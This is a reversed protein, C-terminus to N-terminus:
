RDDQLLSSFARKASFSFVDKAYTDWNDDPYLFAPAGIKIFISNAVFPCTLGCSKRGSRYSVSEAAHLIDAPMVPRQQQREKLLTNIGGIRKGQRRVPTKKVKLM